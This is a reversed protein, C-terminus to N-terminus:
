VSWLFAGKSFMKPFPFFHQYGANEGKGLINEVMKAWDWVIVGKSARPFCAKQFCQPFLLFQEYHAIERKGVTNEVRKSIKRGNEDIQLLQRCVRETQFLRFNTKQYHILLIACNSASHFQWWCISEIQVLSYNQWRTLALTWLQCCLAFTWVWDSQFCKSSLWFTGKNIPNRQPHRPLMTSLVSINKVFFNIRKEVTNDFAKMRLTTLEKGCLGSKFLTSFM